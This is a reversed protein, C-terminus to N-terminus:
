ETPNVIFQNKGQYAEALGFIAMNNAESGSATFYIEQPTAGVFRAIKLRAQSLEEAAQRGANNYSSPNGAIKVGRLIEKQVKSDVPAAAAYDLYIEKKM